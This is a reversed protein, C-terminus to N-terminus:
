LEEDWHDRYQSLVPRVDHKLEPCHKTMKIYSTMLLAKASNSVLYFHGDLLEFQDRFSKGDQGAITYGFESIVYAGIKVM